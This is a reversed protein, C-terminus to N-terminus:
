GSATTASTPTAPVSGDDHNPQKSKRVAETSELVGSALSFHRGAIDAPKEAPSFWEWVSGVIPLHRVIGGEYFQNDNARKLDEEAQRISQQISEDLYQPLHLNAEVDASCRSIADVIATITQVTAPVADVGVLLCPEGSRTQGAAFMTHSRALTAAIEQNVRNVAAATPGPAAGAGAVVSGATEPKGVQALLPPRYRVAGLGAIPELDVLELSDSSSILRHFLARQALTSDFLLALRDLDGVLADIEGDQTALTPVTLAPQYLFVCKGDIRTLIIGVRTNSAVVHTLLQSHVQDALAVMREVIADSHLRSPAGTRVLSSDPAPSESQSARREVSQPPASTTTPTSLGSLTDDESPPFSVSAWEVTPSFTFYVAGPVHSCDPFVERLTKLQRLSARLQSSLAAARLAYRQFPSASPVSPNAPPQSAAGAASAAFPVVTSQQPGGHATPSSSSTATTPTTADGTSSSSSSTPTAAASSPSSSSAAADETLLMWLPMPVFADNIDMSLAAAALASAHGTYKSASLAGGGAVPLLPGKPTSRFVYAPPILGTPLGLWDGLRLALSDSMTALERLLLTGSPLTLSSLAQGTLHVWLSAASAVAALKAIEEEPRPLLLQAETDLVLLLPVRGAQTDRQIASELARASIGNGGPTPAIARICNLPLGLARCFSNSFRLTTSVYVVPLRSQFCRFGELAYNAYKREIAARCILELGSGHHFAVTPMLDYLGFAARVMAATAAHMRQSLRLLAERELTSVLQLRIFQAALVARTRNSVKRVGASFTSEGANQAVDPLAADLFALIAQPDLKSAADRDFATLLARLQVIESTM